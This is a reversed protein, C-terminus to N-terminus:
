KPKGKNQADMEQLAISGPIKVVSQSKIWDRLEGALYVPRGLEVRYPIKPDLDKADTNLWTRGRDFAELMEKQTLRTEPPVTWLRERWSPERPSSEAPRTTAHERGKAELASLLSATVEAAILSQITAPQAAARISDSMSVRTQNFKVGKAVRERRQAMLCWLRKRGSDLQRVRDAM